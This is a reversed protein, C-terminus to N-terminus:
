SSVAIPKAFAGFFRKAAENYAAQAADQSDFLGLHQKVKNVRIQASWKGTARHLSVGKTSKGGQAKQNHANDASTAVRLNSRRNNLGDGDEHDILQNPTADMLLRHLRIECGSRICIAYTTHPKVSARWNLQAVSGTFSMGNSFQVTHVAHLDADDIIAQQDNNLTLHM